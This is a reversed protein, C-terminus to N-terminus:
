RSTVAMRITVELEGPNDSYTGPNAGGGTGDLAGFYLRTADTPIVFRQPDGEGEGTLGDGVCYFQYVLPSFEAASTDDCDFSAPPTETPGASDAFVATLLRIRDRLRPGAFGGYDAFNVETGEVIHGDPGVTQGVKWTGSAAEVIFHRATGAPLEVEVPLIGGGGPMSPVSTLTAAYLNSASPITLTVEYCALEGPDGDDCDDGGWADSREGDGDADYDDDGACDQDLGDYFVEDAGPHVAEDEDDCDDGGSAADAYSDGDGDFGDLDDCDEVGDTSDDAARASGRVRRRLGWGRRHLRRRRAGSDTGDAGVDTGTEGTDVDKDPDSDSGISPEGKTVSCAALLILLPSPAHSELYHFGSSSASSALDAACARAPRGRSRVAQM